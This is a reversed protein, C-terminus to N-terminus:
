CGLDGTLSFAMKDVTKSPNDYYKVEISNDTHYRQRKPIGLTDTGIGYNNSLFVYWPRLPWKLQGGVGPHGNFRNYAQWGYTFWHEIKLHATPFWQVRVGNFFWSTNSSVYSPQYAWNDFNYYSFLGVYSVFIGADVNFAM